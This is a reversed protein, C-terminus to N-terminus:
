PKGGIATGATGRYVVMRPPPEAAGDPKPEPMAKAARLFRSVQLEDTWGTFEAPPEGGEPKALSALVLTIRGMQAAVAIREAQKVTVELTATAALKAQQKEDPTTGAVDKMSQDIAIVRVGPEVIEAYFKTSSKGGDAEYQANLMVDVLDGPLVFGSAGTVADIKVSIARMGPQLVAALFGAEGKQVVRQPTIPEGAIFGRKVAAAVITKQPDDGKGRVIFNPDLGQEPWAQWRIQDPKVITGAPLSAAAVLVDVTPAQKVEVVKAQAEPARVLRPVVVFTVGAIALAIGVVVFVLGRM